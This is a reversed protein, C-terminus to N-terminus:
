PVIRQVHRDGVSIEATVGAPWPVAKEVVGDSFIYGGDPMESIVILPNGPVVRGTVISTGTTPSPFPERVVFVLEDSTASPLSSLANTVGRGTLGVIMAAVSRLWGTSGVGTSVIIGSSSQHESQENFSLKYRASVHDKRGVFIDNVGWVVRDDGIAAKVFPIKEVNSSGKEIKRLISEVDSPAFMMLDGTITRPDPNIGVMLQNKVYKAANVFLGDPGCVAVFDTDRFMFNPLSERQVTTLQVDSKIQKRIVSLASQYTLDEKQYPVISQGADNLVFEVASETKHKRILEDLRTPKTILVIRDM